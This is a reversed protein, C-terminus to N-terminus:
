MSYYYAMYINTMITLVSRIIISFLMNKSKIESKMYYYTDIGIKGGYWMTFISFVIKSIVM